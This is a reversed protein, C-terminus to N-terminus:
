INGAEATGDAGGAAGSGVASLRCNNEKAAKLLSEMSHYNLDM